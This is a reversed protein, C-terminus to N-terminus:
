TAKRWIGDGDSFLALPIMLIMYFPLLLVREDYVETIFMILFAFIGFGMVRNVTCDFSVVAKRCENILVLFALLSCIGGQHLLRLYYDHQHSAGFLQRMADLSLVGHGWFPQLFIDPLVRSWVETRTTLTLDKDLVGVIIPAFLQINGAVLILFVVVLAVVFLFNFGTLRRVLPTSSFPTKLLAFLLTFLAMGVKATSSSALFVSFLGLFAFFLHHRKHELEWSACSFVVAPLIIAAWSNIGGLLWVVGEGGYMGRHSEIGSPYLIWTCLNLAILFNFYFSAGLIAKRPNLRCVAHFLTAPIAVVLYTFVATRWDAHNLISVLIPSIWILTFLALPKFSGFEKGRMSLFLIGFAALCLKGCDYISDLFIWAGSAAIYAPEICIALLFLLFPYQFVISCYNIM